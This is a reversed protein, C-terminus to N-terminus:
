QQQNPQDNHSLRCFLFYEFNYNLVYNRLFIIVIKVICHVCIPKFNGCEEGCYGWYNRETICWLKSEDAMTCDNYTVGKYQFPFMCKDGDITGGTAWTACDLLLKWM